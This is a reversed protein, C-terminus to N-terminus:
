QSKILPVLTPRSCDVVDSSWMFARSWCFYNCYDLNCQEYSNDKVKFFMKSMFRSHLMIYCYKWHFRRQVWNREIRRQISNRWKWISVTETSGYNIAFVLSLEVIAALLLIGLTCSIITLLLVTEDLWVKFFMTRM